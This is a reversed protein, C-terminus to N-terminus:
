LVSWYYYVKDQPCASGHYNCVNRMLRKHLDVRVGFGLRTVINACHQRHTGKLVQKVIEGLIRCRIGM